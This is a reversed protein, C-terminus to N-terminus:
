ESLLTLVVGRLAKVQIEDNIAALAEFAKASRGEMIVTIFVSLSIAFFIGICELFDSETGSLYRITNVFVAILGACILMIIM